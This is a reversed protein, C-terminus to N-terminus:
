GAVAPIRIKEITADTLTTGNAEKFIVVPVTLENVWTSTASVTSQLPLWAAFALFFLWPSGKM